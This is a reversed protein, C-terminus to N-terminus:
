PRVTFRNFHVGLARTDTVGPVVTPAIAFRVVCRGDEPRLPVQLFTAADNPPVRVSRGEASVTVPGRHLNEDSELEVVLTGGRCAFVTYTAEPGSWSDAYIGTTQARVRLPGSVRYLAM